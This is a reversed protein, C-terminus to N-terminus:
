YLCYQANTVATTSMKFSDLHVEHVSRNDEKGTDSGMMFNGTPIDSFTVMWKAEEFSLKRDGDRDLEKFM